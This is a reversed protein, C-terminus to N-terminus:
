KGSLFSWDRKRGHHHVPGSVYRNGAAFFRLPLEAARTIGIRTARKVDWDLRLVEAPAEEFWIEEGSCLDVGNQDLDVALAACLRAPGSTLDRGKMGGRHESMVDLGDVPELARLLVAAGFGKPETVVNLCHKAHITYVYLRGPGDFMVANRNRLGIHSHSAADDASLYAEVEVVIGSLRRGRYSRVLLKGLLSEAVEITSQEFFSRGLRALAPRSSHDPQASASEEKMGRKRNGM